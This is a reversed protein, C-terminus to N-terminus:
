NIKNEITPENSLLSAKPSVAFNNSAILWSSKLDFSSSVKDFICSKNSILGLLSFSASDVGEFKFISSIGLAASKCSWIVPINSPLNPLNAFSIASSVASLILISISFTVSIFSTNFLKILFGAFNIPSTFFTPSFNSVFSLDPSM